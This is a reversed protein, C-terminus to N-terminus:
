GSDPGGAECRLVDLLVRFVRALRRAPEEVLAPTVQEEDSVGELADLYAQRAAVLEAGLQQAVVDGEEVRSVTSELKGLDGRLDGVTADPAPALVAAITTDLHGLDRCLDARQEMPSTAGCAGIPGVIVLVALSRGLRLM